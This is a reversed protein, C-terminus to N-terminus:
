KKVEFRYIEHCSVCNNQTEALIGLIKQTDGFGDAENAIREFGKHVGPGLAKFGKPLIRAVEPPTAGGMAMGSRRAAKEVQEMDNKVVGDLVMQSSRLLQRMEHLLKDRNQASIELAIRSDAMLPSTSILATLALTIIKKM